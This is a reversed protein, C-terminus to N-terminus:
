SARRTVDPNIAVDGLAPTITDGAATIVQLDYLLVIKPLSRSDAPDIVLAIVGAAADTITIGAGVSKQFVADTDDASSAFKKRVTFYITAGSLNVPLGAEDTVTVQFRRTDGRPIELRQNSPMPRPASASVDM